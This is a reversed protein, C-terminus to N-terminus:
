DDDSTDNEDIEQPPLIKNFYEVIDRQQLSEALEKPTMQMNSQKVQQILGGTKILYKVMPLDSYRVALHLLNDGTKPEHINTPFHKLFSKTALLNNKCIALQLPKLNDRNVCDFKESINISNKTLHDILLDITELPISNLAIIHFINNNQDDISELLEKSKEKKLLEQIIEFRNLRLAHLLATEGLENKQQLLRTLATPIFKLMLELHNKEISNHILEPSKTLVSRCTRFFIEYDNDM